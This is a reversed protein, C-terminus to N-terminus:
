CILLHEMNWFHKIVFCGKQGADKRVGFVALGM